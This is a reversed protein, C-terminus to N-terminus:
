RTLVSKCRSMQACENASESRQPGVSAESSSVSGTKLRGLMWSAVSWTCAITTSLLVSSGAAWFRCVVSALSGETIQVARRCTTKSSIPKVCCKAHGAPM